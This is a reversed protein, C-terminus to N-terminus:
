RLEKIQISEIGKLNPINAIPNTYHADLAFGHLTSELLAKDIPIPNLGFGQYFSVQEGDVWITAEGTATVRIEVERPTGTKHDELLGTAIPEFREPPSGIYGAIIATRGLMETIWAGFAYRPNDPSVFLLPSGEVHSVPPEREVGHNGSWMVKVSLQKIGTEM